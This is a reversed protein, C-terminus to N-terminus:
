GFVSCENLFRIHDGFIALFLCILQNTYSDPFAGNLTDLRFVPSHDITLLSFSCDAPVQELAERRAKEENLEAKFQKRLTKIEEDLQRARSEHTTAAETAVLYEQRNESARQGEKELSRQLQSQEARLCSVQAEMVAM